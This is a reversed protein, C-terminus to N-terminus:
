KNILHFIFYFMASLIAAIPLTLIWSLGIKSIEKNNATKNAIGIGYISGVSVHTTSVPLGFASAGIVLMGTVLNATFGRGNNFKSIKSSMTEAVKAANLIGGVAMAIAVISVYVPIHFLKTILM